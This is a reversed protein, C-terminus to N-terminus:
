CERSSAGASFSSIGWENGPQWARQAKGLFTRRANEKAPPVTFHRIEKPEFSFKSEEIGIHNSSFIEAAIMAFSEFRFTEIVL